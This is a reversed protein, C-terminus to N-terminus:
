NSQKEKWYEKIIQDDLFSSEPEWTRDAETYGKWDVLYEFSGPNGRHDIIKNIVYIPLEDDRKRKARSVLKLQDVPVHRDLLDGTADKLVYAGNRARRVITYPGIYKPEFKNQRHPDILMVTSGAPFSNPLLLRRNKNLLKVMKDKGSKIRDSIAPFILSVLKEQHQKWDDLSILTPNNEESSYDKLENLTRGFMLSFPSSGTLSSIKNNFTLQAFPVFLPWYNTTGHLLKKIILMVTQISREVKGDARPNYPSILRQEIGTLKILARIVENVFEPGNDSQLIKPFGILCFIDFLEKAVFEAATSKLPRLVIFGTFVCILVLLAKFGDPSEPLHVSTDIQYHEGPGYATIYNAPHFGSKVVVYRTCSDCAKLESDIETRM